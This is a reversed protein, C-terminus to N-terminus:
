YPILAADGFWNQIEQHFAHNAPASWRYSPNWHDTLPRAAPDGEHRRYPHLNPQLLAPRVRDSAVLFFAGIRDPPNNPHLNVVASQRFVRRLTADLHDAVPSPPNTISIVNATFIGDPKLLSQALEFANQNYLHAPQFGGGAADLLILDYRDGADLLRRMVTRADHLFVRADEERLGFWENAIRHIAPDLEAADVEFGMLKLRRAGTGAGLGLVLARRDPARISAAQRLTMELYDFHSRLLEPESVWNQSTGDLLLIRSGARRDAIVALHGQPSTHEHLAEVGYAYRALGRAEPPLMRVVILVLLIAATSKLARGQWLSPSIIGVLVLTVVFFSPRLGLQPILFYATALAGAISGATSIAFLLGVSRAPGDTGQQLRIGFSLPVATSLLVLPPGLILLAALIPGLYIGQALSAKMIFGNFVPVMSIWAASLLIHMVLRRPAVGPRDALAGGWAYGVALCLMTISLIAGWIFISNGFAPAMLRSSLIELGLIAAGTVFVTSPLHQFNRMPFICFLKTLLRWDNPTARFTKKGTTHIRM